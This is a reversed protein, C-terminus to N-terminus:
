LCRRCNGTNLSPGYPRHFRSDSTTKTGFGFDCRGFPIFENEPLRLKQLLVKQQLLSYHMNERACDAVIFSQKWIPFVPMYMKAINSCNALYHNQLVELTQATPFVIEFLHFVM